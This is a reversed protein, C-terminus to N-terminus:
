GCGARDQCIFTPDGQDTQGCRRLPSDSTGCHLCADVPPWDATGEDPDYHEDTAAIKHAEPDGCENDHATRWAKGADARGLATLLEVLAEIDGCTLTATGCEAVYDCSFTDAFRRLAQDLRSNM